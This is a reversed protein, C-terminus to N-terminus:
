VYVYELHKSFVEYALDISAQRTTFSSDWKHNGYIRLLHVPIKKDIGALFLAMEEYSDSFDNGWYIPISIEIHVGQEYAEQIRDEVVYSGVGCLNAYQDEKGKWDINMADTVKCINYWPRKNAFANTKIIFKLNSRKCGQEALDILYEYSIIPENYTMCISECGEKKAMDVVQDPLFKRSKEYSSAQSIKYNECFVCSLNCGFSGISLTKTGPLFHRLPRTEIPDVVVTTLYGYNTSEIKESKRMRVRCKGYEGDKLVCFHPCLTCRIGGPDKEYIPSSRDM